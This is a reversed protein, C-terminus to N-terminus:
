LLIGSDVIARFTKNKKYRLNFENETLLILDIERDSEIDLDDIKEFTTVILDLDSLASWNGKAFSGFIWARSIIKDRKLSNIKLSLADLIIKKNRDRIDNINLSMTALM